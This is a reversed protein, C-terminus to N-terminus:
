QYRESDKNTLETNTIIIMILHFWTLQSEGAPTINIPPVPLRLVVSLIRCSPVEVALKSKFYSVLYNHPSIYKNNVLM